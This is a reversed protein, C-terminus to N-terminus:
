DLSNQHSLKNPKYYQTHANASREKIDSHHQRVFRAAAESDGEKIADLTILPVLEHLDCRRKNLILSYVIIVTEVAIHGIALIL